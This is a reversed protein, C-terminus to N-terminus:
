RCSVAPHDATIAFRLDSSSVPRGSGPTGHSIGSASCREYGAATTSGRLVERGHDTIVAYTTRLNDPDSRREVLGRKAMATVVASPAPFVHLWDVDMTAPHLNRPVFADLQITPNM